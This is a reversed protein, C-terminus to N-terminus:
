YYRHKVVPEDYKKGFNLLQSKKSWTCVLKLVQDWQRNGTLTQAQSKPEINLLIDIFNYTFGSQFFRLM